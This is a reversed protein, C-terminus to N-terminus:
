ARAQGSALTVLRPDNAADVLICKVRDQWLLAFERREEASATGALAKRMLGKVAESLPVIEPHYSAEVSAGTDVRRFRIDADIDANFFLLNRRDFNGAIGKFGSDRTAGTILTTVNAIVGTVGTLLDDRFEVEIGGRQPFEGGYLHSLAKLTMLYAGAVTPCSHGALRVADVYRYEIIGNEAAGLFGALPDHVTISSVDDYFSPYTM